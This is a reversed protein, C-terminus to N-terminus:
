GKGAGAEVSKLPDEIEEPKRRVSSSKLIVYGTLGSVVSGAIIGVKASDMYAPNNAFALNAIFISMTFGVGALAAVGIVQKFSMDDPLSTLKLKIGLYSLLPIGAMKGAFLSVAIIGSLQWNLSMDQSFLIGANALAFAPMILYAVWNHLKHELHQLPSQVKVTWEELVDLKELQEASLIPGKLSVADRLEDSFECLRNSFTRVNIKQRIPVTFALLVGAITPHIGAKLFLYWIVIGIILVAYKSYYGM